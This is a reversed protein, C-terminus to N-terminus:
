YAGIDSELAYSIQRRFDMWSLSDGDELLGLMASAQMQNPLHPPNSPGQEFPLRLHPEFAVGSLGGAMSRVPCGSM